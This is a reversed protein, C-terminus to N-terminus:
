LSRDGNSGRGHPFDRGKARIRRQALYADLRGAVDPPLDAPYGLAAAQSLEAPGGTLARIWTWYLNRERVADMATQRHKETMEKAHIAALRIVSDRVDEPTLRRIAELLEAIEQTMDRIREAGTNATAQVGLVVSKASREARAAADDILQAIERGRLGRAAALLWRIALILAGVVLLCVGGATALVLASTQIIMINEM